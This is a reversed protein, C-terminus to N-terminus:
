ELPDLDESSFTVARPHNDLMVSWLEVGDESPLRLRAGGERGGFLGQGRVRVRMGTDILPVRAKPQEAPEAGGLLEVAPKAPVIEVEQEIRGLEVETGDDMRLILQGGITVKGLVIAM